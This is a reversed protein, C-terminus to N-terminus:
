GLTEMELEQMSKTVCDRLELQGGVNQRRESVINLKRNRFITRFKILDDCRGVLDGLIFAGFLINWEHILARNYESDRRRFSQNMTTM